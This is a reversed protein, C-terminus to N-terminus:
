REGRHASGAAAFLALLQDTVAELRQAPVPRGDAVLDLGAVV